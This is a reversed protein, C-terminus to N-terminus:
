GDSFVRVITDGVYKKEQLTHYEMFFSVWIEWPKLLTHREVEKWCWRM